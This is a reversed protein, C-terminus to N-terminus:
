NWFEELTRAFRQLYKLVIETYDKQDKKLFQKWNANQVKIERLQYKEPGILISFNGHEIM